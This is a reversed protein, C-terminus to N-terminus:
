GGHLDEAEVVLSIRPGVESVLPLHISRRGIVSAVGISESRGQSVWL